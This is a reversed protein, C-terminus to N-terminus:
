RTESPVTGAYALRPDADQVSRCAPARPRMLQAPTYGIWHKLSRTLHPQDFYGAAHVTDLISWGQRLLAAARKAREV